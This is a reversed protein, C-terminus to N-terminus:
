FRYGVGLYSVVPNIDMSAQSRTFTGTPVLAPNASQNVTTTVTATTSLPLYSVSAIGYWRPAFRYQLGLTAVPDWADDAEADVGVSQAIGGTGAQVAQVLAQQLAPGVHVDTFRTYTVGLGVYPRLAQAPDRFTYIALATPSWQRAKALTGYQSLNGVLASNGSGTLQFVPPVGGVLQGSLHDNFNYTYTLGLTDADNIDFSTGADTSTTGAGVQTTRLPESDPQNAIHLWGASLMNPGEDDAARASTATVAAITLSLTALAASMTKM